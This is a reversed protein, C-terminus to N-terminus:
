KLEEVLFDFEEVANPLTTPPQKPETPPRSAPKEEHIVISEATSVVHVTFRDHLKGSSLFVTVVYSGPSRATGFVTSHSVDCQLWNMGDDVLM